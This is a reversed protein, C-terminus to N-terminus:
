INRKSLFKTIGNVDDRTRITLEFQQDIPIIAVHILLDPSDFAIFEQGIVQVIQIKWSQSLKNALKDCQIISCEIKKKEEIEFSVWLEGFEETTMFSNDELDMSILSSVLSQDEVDSRERRKMKANVAHNNFIGRPYQGSHITDAEYNSFRGITTTPRNPNISLKPSIVPSQTEKKFTGDKIIEILGQKESSEPCEKLLSQLGSLWVRTRVICKKIATLGALKMDEDELFRVWKQMPDMWKIESQKSLYGYEGVMSFIFLILASSHIDTSTKKLLKYIFDLVTEKLRTEGVEEDLLTKITQCLTQVLNQNLNKGTETLIHLLTITYEEDTDMHYDNVWQIIWDGLIKNMEKESKSLAELIDSSVSKLVDPSMIIDLLELAKYVITDDDVFELVTKGLQKEQDKWISCDIFSLGLLGLYKLNHNTAQLFPDLYYLTDKTPSIGLCKICELVIAFAADVKKAVSNLCALVIERMEDSMSQNRRAYIGYIVLCDLQAWPALVGHYLFSKHVKRQIIQRHIAYIISLLDVNHIQLINKWVSLAAYVVSHDRDHLAQILIPEIRELPMDYKEYLFYLAMVAKKRVIQKPVHMAKLVLDVVSEPIEPHYLYCIANLAISQNWHNQSALDQQLTNILM